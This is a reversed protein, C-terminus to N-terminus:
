APSPNRCGTRNRTLRTCPPRGPTGVTAVLVASRAARKEARAGEAGGIRPVRHGGISGSGVPAPDLPV